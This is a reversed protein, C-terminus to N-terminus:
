VAQELALTCARPCILCKTPAYEIIRWVYPRTIVHTTAFTVERSLWSTEFWRYRPQFVTSDSISPMGHFRRIKFWTASQLRGHGGTCWGGSVILGTIVRSPNNNPANPGMLTLLISYYNHYYAKENLGESVSVVSNSSFNTLAVAKSATAWRTMRGYATM